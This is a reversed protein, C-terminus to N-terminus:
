AAAQRVARVTVEVYRDPAEVHPDHGAGEITERTARPIMEALRDLVRGFPPPSESGGTLHVPAEIRELSGEEINVADPDGLEDLFTPANNIVIKRVESPLKDWAGPGLAVEEVFQRAAREHDGGAIRGAVSEVSAGVQQMLGRSEPDEALLGLLPPEHCTLSRFLEPRRPALRLAVNGGFSNTVVHAPVLDLTELLGALDDGDEDVSGQTDPRESRSHGRRDYALVRYSNALDAIVPQWETADVWSGHVLVLPEGDGHLEYYLTVGNVEAEAV